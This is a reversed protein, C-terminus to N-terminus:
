YVKYIKPEHGFEEKVRFSPTPIDDQKAILLFLKQTESFSVLHSSCLPKSLETETQIHRQRDKDTTEKQRQRQRDAGRERGRGGETHTYTHVRTCM